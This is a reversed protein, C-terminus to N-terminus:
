DEGDDRDSGEWSRRSTHRVHLVEVADHDLIAYFIKYRYRQLVFVRIDPDGTAQWALPNAAIRQVGDFIAHLVTLAGSPSREKIYSFIEDIDALSRARYRVKM